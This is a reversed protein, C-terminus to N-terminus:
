KKKYDKIVYNYYYLKPFILLSLQFWIQFTITTHLCKKILSFRVSEVFYYKYSIIHYIAVVYTLWYLKLEKMFAELYETM